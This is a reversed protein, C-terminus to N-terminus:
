PSPWIPSPMSCSPCRPMWSCSGAFGAHTPSLTPPSTRYVSAGTRQRRKKPRIRAASATSTAPVPFATIGPNPSARGTWSRTSGSRPLGTRTPTTMGPIGARSLSGPQPLSGPFCTLASAKQPPPLPIPTLSAASLSVTPSTWVTLGSRSASKAGAHGKSKKKCGALSFLMVSALILAGARKLTKM